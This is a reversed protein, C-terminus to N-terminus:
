EHLKAIWDIQPTSHKPPTKSNIWNLIINKLDYLEISSNDLEFCPPKEIGILDTWPGGLLECEVNSNIKELDWNRDILRSELVEPNCRLIIIADVPLLHSLHGTIITLERPPETWDNSLLNALKEVDVIAPDKQNTSESYCQYKKAIEEVEEFNYESNLLNSVTSKGCGPTGTIAIRM